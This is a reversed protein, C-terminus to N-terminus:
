LRTTYAQVPEVLPFREGAATSLAVQTVKVLFVKFILLCFLEYITRQTERDEKKGRCM